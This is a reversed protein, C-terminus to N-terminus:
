ILYLFSSRFINLRLGFWSTSVLLSISQCSFNFNWFDFCDGNLVIAVALLEVAEHLGHNMLKQIRTTDGFSFLIIRNTYLFSKEVDHHIEMCPVAVGPTYALSLDEQTACPKSPVISLKGPAPSMHYKLSKEALIEKESSM